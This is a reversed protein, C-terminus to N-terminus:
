YTPNDQNIKLYQIAKCEQSLNWTRRPNKYKLPNLKYYKISSKTQQQQPNKHSHEHPINNSKRDKDLKPM